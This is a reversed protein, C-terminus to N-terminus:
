FVIALFDTAVSFLQPGIALFDASIAFLQAALFYQTAPFHVSMRDRTRVAVWVAHGGIMVNALLLMMANSPLPLHPFGHHLAVVIAAWAVPHNWAFVRSSGPSSM